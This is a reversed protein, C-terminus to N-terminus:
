LEFVSLRRKEELARSHYFPPSEVVEKRVRQLRKMRRKPNKTRIKASKNSAAHPAGAVGAGVLVGAAGGVCSAGAGVFVGVAVGAGVCVGEGAGVLVGVGFGVEVGEGVGVFSGM